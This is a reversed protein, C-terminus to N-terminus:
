TAISGLPCYNSVEGKTKYSLVASEKVISGGAVAAGSKRTQTNITNTRLWDYLRKGTNFETKTISTTYHSCRRPTM